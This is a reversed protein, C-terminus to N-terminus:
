YVFLLVLMTHQGSSVIVRMVKETIVAIKTIKRYIFYDKLLEVDNHFENYTKANQSMIVANKQLDEEYLKM